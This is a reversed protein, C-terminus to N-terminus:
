LAGWRLVPAQDDREHWARVKADAWAADEDTHCITCANPSGFAISAAPSPPRMSHDSRRMRAFETMPMHCAICVSGASEEPHHSHTAVDRVRAEHCPLCAENARDGPFRNRGSSTHCHVCHLKGSKACPSLRWLTFTYNEGLDRGDPHFDPDELAVLDYHDFFRSGPTFSPTIPSMKAHCPACTDNHQEPTFASTLIIAPDAPKAGEGAAECVRIHEAAPGHCTECNIGAEAWTTRYTDTAPDYNTSLQSVHCGYCSTNFTYPRETWDLAEDPAGPFHRVASGSTDYWERRRVDFALPLTQLKGGGLPTLFYYVNKGGLAYAIPYRADGDAGREVVAAPDADLDVRYRRGRIELDSTQPLLAERALAPRYPQMALGHHSTEWLDHFREHCRRCVASGTFGEPRGPGKAGRECGALAIAAALIRAAGRM